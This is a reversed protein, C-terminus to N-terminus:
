KARGRAYMRGLEYPVGVTVPDIIADLRDVGEAVLEREDAAIRGGVLPDCHRALTTREDVADVDDVAVSRGRAVDSREGRECQGDQVAVLCQGDQM